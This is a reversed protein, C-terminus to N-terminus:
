ASAGEPGTAGTEVVGRSFVSILAPLVLLEAAFATGICAASLLGINAMSQFRSVLMALFGAALTVSTIVIARGVHMGAGRSAEQPSFGRDRLAGFEHLFHITDDVAIGLAIPAVLATGADLAIGFLGMLGFLVIMPLLNPIMALSGWAVSGLFLMVLALVIVTSGSFAQFASERVVRDIARQLISAGTLEVTWEAPLRRVGAEIASLLAERSEVGAPEASVSVRVQRHDFSLWGDFTAADGMSVLALVEGVNSDNLTEAGAARASSELITAASRVAIIGPIARLTRELDELPTISGPEELPRSLVVRLEVGEISTLRRSVFEFSERTPHGERWYSLPHADATLRTLGFAGVIGLAASSLLIWKANTIPFKVLRSIIGEWRVSAKTASAKSDPMLLLIAPLVTFTMVLSAGVGVATMVGFHSFGISDTWSFSLLGAMSTATTMACPVVTERTAASLSGVRPTGGSRIRWYATLYHVADASGMVLVLTPGASTLPDWPWGFVAISGLACGTALGVTAMLGIVSQWSRLFALFGVSLVLATAIGILAAEAMAERLSAMHLMPNGSLSFRFGLGEFPAIAAEIDSVLAVQGEPSMTASEVAIAGTNGDPSILSRRWMPDALAARVAEQPPPTRGDSFRHVVFGEPAPLVIPTHAPSAVRGVHPSQALTTGVQYAMSLSVQDLASKCPDGERDCSWAILVPYGGGFDRLFRDLRLVEPHNAGILAQAGSTSPAQSARWGGLVSVVVAALITLIPWRLSFETLRTM